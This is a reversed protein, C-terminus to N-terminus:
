PFASFACHAAQWYGVQLIWERTQVSPVFILCSTASIIRITIKGFKGWVPNLDDFIKKAPPIFGHFHALIHDKWLDSTYLLISELAQVVPTGDELYTPSLIKRLKRLSAKFREAYSTCRRFSRQQFQPNIFSILLPTLIRLWCLSPPRPFALQRSIRRLPTNCDQFGHNLLLRM